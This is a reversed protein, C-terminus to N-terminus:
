FSHQEQLGQILLCGKEKIRIAINESQNKWLIITLRSEEKHDLGRHGVPVLSRGCIYPQCPFTLLNYCCQKYGNKRESKRERVCLRVTIFSQNLIAGNLM